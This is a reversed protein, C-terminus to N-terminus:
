VAPVGEAFQSCTEGVLPTVCCTSVNEILVLLTGVAGFVYEADTTNVQADVLEQVLGVVVTLTVNFTVACGESIEVDSCVNLEQEPETVGLLWVSCTVLEPAASL